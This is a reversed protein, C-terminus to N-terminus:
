EIVFVSRSSPVFIPKKGDMGVVLGDSEIVKM